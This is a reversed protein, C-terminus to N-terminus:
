KICYSSFYLYVNNLAEFATTYVVVFSFDLDFDLDFCGNRGVIHVQKAHVQIRVKTKPMWRRCCVMCKVKELFSHKSSQYINPASPYIGCLCVGGKIRVTFRRHSPVDLSRLIEMAYTRVWFTKFHYQESFQLSRMM